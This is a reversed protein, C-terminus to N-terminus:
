RGAVTAEAVDLLRQAWEVAKVADSTAVSIPVYQSKSKQKLLRSLTASVEAGARGAAKLEAVADMHNEGKGTRGTLALCIADKSNIGSIVAASTAANYLELDANFQAAELFEKAKELHGRADGLATM